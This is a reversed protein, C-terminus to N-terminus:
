NIALRKGAKGNVKLIWPQDEVKFERTVIGFKKRRAEERQKKGFESGAGSETTEEEGYIRRASMDREMRAQPSECHVRHNLLQQWGTLYVPM